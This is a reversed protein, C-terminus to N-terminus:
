KYIEQAGIVGPTNGVASNDASSPHHMMLMEAENIFSQLTISLVCLCEHDYFGRVTYLQAVQLQFRVACL